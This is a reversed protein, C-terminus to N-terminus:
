LVLSNFSGNKQIVCMDGIVYNTIFDESLKLKNSVTGFELSDYGEFIINNNQVIVMKEIYDEIDTVTSSVILADKNNDLFIEYLREKQITRFSITKLKSEFNEDTTYLLIKSDSPVLELIDKFYTKSNIM